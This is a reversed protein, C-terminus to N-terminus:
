AHRNPRSGTPGAGDMAALVEELLQVAQDAAASPRTDVGSRLRLLARQVAAQKDGALALLADVAECRDYAPDISLVVARAALRSDLKRRM